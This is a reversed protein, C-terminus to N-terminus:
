LFLPVGPHCLIALSWHNDKHIRLMIFDIGGAMQIALWKEAMTLDPQEKDSALQAFYGSPM